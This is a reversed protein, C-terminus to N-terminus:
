PYSLRFRNGGLPTLTVRHPKGKRWSTLNRSKLWEKIAAGRFEPCTTWFTPTLTFTHVQRAIIVKINSWKKPSHNRVNQRGVRIGYSGGKWVSAKM